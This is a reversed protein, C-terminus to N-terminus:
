CDASACMVQNEDGHDIVHFFELRLGCVVLGSLVSPINYLLVIGFIEMWSM